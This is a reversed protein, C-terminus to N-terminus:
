LVYPFFNLNQFIVTTLNCVTLKEKRLIFSNKISHFFCFTTALNNPPIMCDYGPLDACHQKHWLWYKQSWSLPLGPAFVQVALKSGDLPCQYTMDDSWRAQFLSFNSFHQLTATTSHMFLYDNSSGNNKQTHKGEWNLSSWEKSSSIFIVSRHTSSGATILSLVLKSCLYLRICPLYICCIHLSEWSCVLPLLPFTKM